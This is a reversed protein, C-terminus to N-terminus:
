VSSMNFMDRLNRDQVARIKDERQETRLHILSLVRDELQEAQLPVCVVTQAHEHASAACVGRLLQTSGEARGSVETRAARDRGETHVRDGDGRGGSFLECVFLEGADDYHAHGGDGDEDRVQEM